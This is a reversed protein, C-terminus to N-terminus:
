LVAGDDTGVAEAEGAVICGRGVSGCPVFDELGADGDEVVVDLNLGVGGDVAGGDALCADVGAGLDVVEDHDAVAGRDPGVRQEARLDAEGAGGVHASFTM